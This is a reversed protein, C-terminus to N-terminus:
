ERWPELRKLEIAIKELWRKQILKNKSHNTQQDYLNQMDSSEQYIVDAAKQIAYRGKRCPSIMEAFRQRLKRAHIETIDFHAQEHALLYDNAESKKVWSKAKDFMAYTELHFGQYDCSWSFVIGSETTADMYTFHDPRAEFDSWKLRYGDQWKLEKRNGQEELGTSNKEPSKFGFLVMVLIALSFMASLSFLLSPSKKM